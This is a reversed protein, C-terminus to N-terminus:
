GSTMDSNPPVIALADPGQAGYMHHSSIGSAASGPVSSIPGNTWYVCKPPALVVRESPAGPLGSLWMPNPPRTPTDPEYGAYGSIVGGAGLHISFMNAVPISYRIRASVPGYWIDGTQGTYQQPPRNYSNEAELNWNPAFFAGLRGGVGWHNGLFLANDFKTYQGFGGILLTGPAQAAATGGFLLATMACVTWRRRLM